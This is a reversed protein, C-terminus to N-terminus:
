EKIVKGTKGDLRILYLGNSIESLDITNAGKKVRIAMILRGEASWLEADQDAGAYVHLQSAVPCPYFVLSGPSSLENVGVTGTTYYNLILNSNEWNNTSADWHEEMIQTQNWQTDYSYSSRMSKEWTSTPTNWVELSSSLMHSNSDYTYSTRTKLDFAGAGPDWMEFDYSLLDSGAYIFNTRRMANTWGTVNWDEDTSSTILSGTYVSTTRMNNAWSNSTNDWYEYLAVTQLNGSYTFSSRFSNKWSGSLWVQDTQTLLNGAADYTYSHKYLDSWGNNWGEFSVELLRHNSDYVYNKANEDHVWGSGADNSSLNGDEKYFTNYHYINRHTYDWNNVSKNWNSYWYTSDKLSILTAARATQLQLTQGFFDPRKQTQSFSPAAFAIAAMLFLSAKM